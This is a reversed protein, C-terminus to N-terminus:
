ATQNIVDALRAIGEEIRDPTCNSFNLRLCNPATRGPVTFAAGPIFAVQAETVATELVAKTDVGAALEVWM